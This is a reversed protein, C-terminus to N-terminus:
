LRSNENKIEMEKWIIDTLNKIELNVLSPYQVVYQLSEEILQKLENYDM